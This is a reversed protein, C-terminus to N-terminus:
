ELVVESLSVSSIQEKGAIFHLDERKNWAGLLSTVVNKIREKAVYECLALYNSQDPELAIIKKYKAGTEELFLRVTDGDYAGIDLLVENDTVSFIDNHYFNMNNNHVGFIFKVNGTMKTNLYALLNDISVKDELQNCLQGFRDTEKVISDYEVLGYQGYHISFAYFIKQVEPLRKQLEKGREYYSHGIIVNFKKYKQIVEELTWVPMGRYM